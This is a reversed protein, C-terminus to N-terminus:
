GPYLTQWIFPNSTLHEFHKLMIAVYQGTHTVFLKRVFPFSQQCGWFRFDKSLHLSEMFSDEAYQWRLKKKMKKIGIYWEDLAMSMISCTLDSESLEISANVAHNESPIELYCIIHKQCCRKCDFLLACRSSIKLKEIETLYFYFGQCQDFIINIWHTLSIALEVNKLGKKSM